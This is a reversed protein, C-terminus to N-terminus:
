KVIVPDRRRPPEVVVSSVVTTPECTDRQLVGAYVKAM